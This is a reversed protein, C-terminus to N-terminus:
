GSLGVQRMLAKFRPEQAMTKFIPSVKAFPVGADHQRYARELWDLAAATNGRAAYVEAIQYAGGRRDQALMDQLAADAQERRGLAQYALALATRRYLGDDGAAEALVDSLQHRDILILTLLFHGSTLHPSLALARRLDAEAQELQGSFYRVRGRDRYAGANLPDREIESSIGLVFPEYCPGADCGSSLVLWEPMALNADSRKAADFQAAAGKWDYDYFARIEALALHAAVSGPDLALAKQAAARALAADQDPTPDIYESLFIYAQSLEAWAPAYGPDLSVARQVVQVAQRVDAETHRQRLFKGQLLLSYAEVNGTRDGHATSALLTAKLAQVVAGAIQDQVQFIDKLDRDYTQSWADYGSDAQILQATVRVTHGSKRVSGELVHAVGLAKAIEAITVHQGRFYFSSTRGPVKLEPVKTLQDILEESLGDSFYAQDRKESLDEFPLVAISKEPIAASATAGSTSIAPPAPASVPGSQAVRKSPVLRDAVFYGVAIVLAAVALVVVPTSRWSPARSDAAVQYAPDARRPTAAPKPASTRASAPAAQEDPGLLRRVREAFASSTAGDPLHTWQLERFRDPVRAERDSTQDIVVPLLFTKDQAMLHSRDVALKWELRFYGESRAQSNSSIVPIFLACAKIHQRIAADWADGGRLESKDYWVEVGAARLCACIRAAPEADESAYSLFVAREGARAGGDDAPGTQNTM